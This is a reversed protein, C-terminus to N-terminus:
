HGTKDQINTGVIILIHYDIKSNRNIFKPTNKYKVTYM